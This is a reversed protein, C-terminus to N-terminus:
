EGWLPSRDAGLRLAAPPLGARHREWMAQYLTELDRTFGETDFLRCSLRQALLREKFRALEAPNRLLDRARDEYEPLSETVLESLGAAQLLSAGVRGPFTEGRCTLLPVGVWLADSGTTHANYPLTDLFLDALAVRALHEPNPVSGAFVLRAPAVGRREAEARLHDRVEASAGAYLWLVTEPVDSLMRCWIDFFIPTLKNPNNFCCLVLGDEPL